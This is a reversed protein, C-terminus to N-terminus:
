RGLRSFYERVYARLAPPYVNRSLDAEAAEAYTAYVERYQVRAEGPVGTTTQPAGLVEERPLTIEGSEDAIRPADETGYPASSGADEHHGSNGSGNGSGNTTGQSPNAGQGRQAGAGGAQAADGGSAGEGITTQQQADGLREQAQQLAAQAQALTQNPANAQATESLTQAAEAVAQQAEAVDGSYMEQAIDQFQAALTPDTEQLTEALQEFADALALVEEPTLPRENAPDVLDRLYAAAAETDGQQLAETFPRVIAETTLPAAEALRQIQAEAEPSRLNALQHEAEALAAQREDPTSRRERLVSLAEELAKLAAKRESASLATNEALADHAAELQTIAEETAQQQMERRALEAEQPNAILLAPVLCLLAILALIGASRSPRAPFAAHPDVTRVTHLTEDRQLRAMAGPAPIRGQALEWATTLRNALHLRRDFRRLRQPLPRPWAYGLVAGLLTGSGLAWILALLLETQYLWPMIRATIAAILGAVLAAVIGWGAGVVAGHQRLASTLRSIERNLSNDM